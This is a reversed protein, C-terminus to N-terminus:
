ERTKGGAEGGGDPESPAPEPVDAAPRQKARFKELMALKAKAAAERRDNHDDYKFGGM